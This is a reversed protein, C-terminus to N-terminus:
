RLPTGFPVLMGSASQCVYMRSTGLGTVVFSLVDGSVPLYANHIGPLVPLPKVLTGYKVIVTSAQSGWIYTLHLTVDSSSTTRQLWVVIRGKREHWCGRFGTGPRQVSYVGSIATPYLRGDSGFMRLNDLTGQPRTIWHLDASHRNKALTGIVYSELNYKGFYPGLVWLPMNQDIVTSRQPALRLAQEVNAIYSRVQHSSTVDEYTQVSRVSGIVFVVVIAAAVGKFAPNSPLAFRLPQSEEGAVPLFALGVCLALVCAAEAVYRTQLGFLEAYYPSKGLSVRGLLIPVMDAFIVWGLLIAWARWARAKILVSAAIVALAILEAVLVVAASPAVTAYLNDQVFPLWRWQMGVAGTLLSNKVLSWGFAWTTAVTPLHPQAPAHLFALIFVILYGVMLAFYTLWGKWQRRLTLVAGGLWSRREMLFGATVALLLPPLLMAKEFFLMSIVLWVAAAALHRGRSTRVYLVHSNLMMFIALQFPVSEIACWWWGLDPVTLPTLAYIALPILIVPRDGFLTRLLRLAALSAAAVFALAVAADLGWNYLSIRVVVWTIGRLGPSLHGDTVTSLYHWNLPSTLAIDQNVFDDRRLYMHTLFHAKWIVEALILLLGGILVRHRWIGPWASGLDWNASSSEADDGPAPAADAPPYPRFRETDTM